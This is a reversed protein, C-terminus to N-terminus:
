DKATIKTGNSQIVVTELCVVKLSSHIRQKEVKLNLSALNTKLIAFCAVHETMAIPPPLSTEPLNQKTICPKSWLNKYHRAFKRKFTGTVM